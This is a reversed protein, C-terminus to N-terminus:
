HSRISAPVRPSSRLGQALAMNRMSYVTSGRVGVSCDAKSVHSLWLCALSAARLSRMWPATPTIGVGSHTTSNKVDASIKKYMSNKASLPSRATTCPSMIPVTTETMVDM